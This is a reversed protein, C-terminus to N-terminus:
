VPMWTWFGMLDGSFITLIGTLDLEFGMWILNLDWEFRLWIGSLDWDLWVELWKLGGCMAMVQRVRSPRQAFSVDRHAAGESGCCRSTWCGLPSPASCRLAGAPTKHYLPPNLSVGPSFHKFIDIMQNTTVPVHSKNEWINPIIM